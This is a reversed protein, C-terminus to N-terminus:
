PGTTGQATVIFSSPTGGLESFTVSYNANQGPALQQQDVLSTDTAIVRQQDDFLTVIVKVLNATQAGHNTVQGSLILQGTDDIQSQTTVDFNEPGYFTGTTLDAYRASAHLEYRATGPPMGDSFLISFPAYQGPIILDSSVFDDHTALLRDEADYLQAQIRVFELGIPANNVVQGAIQFAGNRGVWANLSTFGVADQPKSDGTQVISAWSSLPNVTMTNVILSVTRFQAPDDPLRTRLAVFYPGIVQVFDNHQSIKGGSNLFFKIRLSGDPMPERAAEQFSAGRVAYLTREYTSALTGLDPPPPVPTPAGPAVPTSVPATMKDLSLVYMGVLPEATNPPSFEVNIAYNNSVDNIVWDPPVNLTFVGSPHSYTIFTTPDVLSPTPETSACGALLLALALTGLKRLM